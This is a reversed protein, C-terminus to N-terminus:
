KRVTNANHTNFIKIVKKLKPEPNVLTLLSENCKQM